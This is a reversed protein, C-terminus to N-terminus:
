QRLIKAMAKGQALEDILKDLQRLRRMSPETIEEVRVGCILGKIQDAAPHFAPAQDIFAGLDAEGQTWKRLAAPTYGTLWCIVQDLEQRTRGKREVKALWAPFIKAFAMSFVRHRTAIAPAGPKPKPLSRPKPRAASVAKTAPRAKAKPATPM